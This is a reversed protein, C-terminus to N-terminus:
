QPFTGDPLQFAAAPPLPLTDLDSAYMTSMVAARWYTKPYIFRGGGVGDCAQQGFPNLPCGGGASTRWDGGMAIIFHSSARDDPGSPDALVLRVSGISIAARVSNGVYVFAPNDSWFHDVCGTTPYVTLAGTGISVGGYTCPGSFDGQWGGGGVDSGEFYTVWTDSGTPLVLLKGGRFEVRTNAPRIQTQDVYAISWWNLWGTGAPGTLM